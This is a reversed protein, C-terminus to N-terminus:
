FRFKSVIGVSVQCMLRNEKNDTNEQKKKVIENLNRLEIYVTYFMGSHRNVRMKATIFELLESFRICLMKLNTVM